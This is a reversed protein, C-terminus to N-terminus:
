FWHPFSLSLFERGVILNRIPNCDPEVYFWYLAVTFLSSLSWNRVDFGDIARREKVEGFFEEGKM